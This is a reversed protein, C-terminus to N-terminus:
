AAITQGALLHIAEVGRVTGIQEPDTFPTVNVLLTEDENEFRYYIPLIASRGPDTHTATIRAALTIIREREESDKADWNTRVLTLPGHPTSPYVRLDQPLLFNQLERKETETVALVVKTDPAIKYYLSFDLLRLANLTFGEENFLNIVRDGFGPVTFKCRACSGLPDRTDLSLDRAQELVDANAWPVAPVGNGIRGWTALDGYGDPGFCLPRLVRNELGLRATLEGLDEEELGYRGIREGTVIFDAGVRESYRSARALLLLRCNYCSSRLSFVPRSPDVFRRYERKLSQTRFVTHAWEERVLTRLEDIEMAFPSRFHLLFM